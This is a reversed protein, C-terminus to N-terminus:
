RNELEALRKTASEYGQQSSKRYFLLAKEMNKKKEPTQGYEYMWGLFYMAQPDHQDAAKSFLKFARDLNKGSQLHGYYYIQGLRNMASPNDGLVAKEYWKAADDYSKSRGYGYEAFLGLMYQSPAHNQKAAKLFMNSAIDYKKEQYSKYGLRYQGEAIGKSALVSDTKEIEKNWSSYLNGGYDMYLDKKLNNDDYQYLCAVGLSTIRGDWNYEFPLIIENKNNIGGTKGNKIVLAIVGYSFYQIGASIFRRDIDRCDYDFPIVVKGYRDIFGLKENKVVGGLGGYFPFAYDYVLPVIENGMWDIYGYKGNKSVPARNSLCSAATTYCFPTIFDGLANVFAYKGDKKVFAPNGYRFDDMEDYICPLVERGDLNLCGWKGNKKVKLIRETDMVKEPVEEYDLPIALNGVADICGQRLGDKTRKIVPWYKQHEVWVASSQVYIRNEGIKDYMLPVVVNGEKDILGYKKGYPREIEVVALGNSGYKHVKSYSEGPKLTAVDEYPTEEKEKKQPTSHVDKKKKSVAKIEKKLPVSEKPKRTVKHDQACVTLTPLLMFLMFLKKNM